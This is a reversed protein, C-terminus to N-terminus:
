QIDLKISAKAFVEKILNFGTINNENPEAIHIEPGINTWYLKDKITGGGDPYGLIYKGKPIIRDFMETGTWNSTLIYFFSNKCKPVILNLATETQFWNTPVFVLDFEETTGLNDIVNPKYKTQYYKKFGKREDLIDINVGNQSIDPKHTRVLHTIDVGAENLAWGYITGIVGTGVVLIKM